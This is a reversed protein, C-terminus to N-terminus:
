KIRNLLEEFERKHNTNEVNSVLNVMYGNTGIIFSATMNRLSLDSDVRTVDSYQLSQQNAVQRKGEIKGGSQITNEEIKSLFSSIYISRVKDFKDLDSKLNNITISFIFIGNKSEYNCTYYQMLGATQSLKPSCYWDVSIDKYKSGTQAYNVNSTYFIISFLVILNKM